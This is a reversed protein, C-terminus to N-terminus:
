SQAGSRLLLEEMEKLGQERAAQLATGGRLDVQDVDAGAAIMAEMLRNEGARAASTLREGLQSATFPLHAGVQVLLRIVEMHNALVACVLPPDGNRDKKHILAGQELLFHTMALNGESAAIHLPTRLDYDAASVDAGQELCYKLQAMDGKFVAACMLYPFLITKLDAVENRSSLKMNSVIAAIIDMNAGSAVSLKNTTPDVQQIKVSMEGRMNKVMLEKQQERSIPLSLVHALKALAAEPTIDLGPIAGANMLVKGTEYFAAVGGHSCQTVCLIIVGRATAEAIIDIVDQRNSPINGAGYCQLVVGEIPPGLFHKITSTTISPFIRLMAVNQCLNPHVKMKLLASPKLVTQHDVSIEIAVKALPSLNLSDFAHLDGASVKVTRNGRLLKHDFYVCVEPITYNGALILAGIINDLGDNRTEFCPIQSGTVIVTKGLNELMFSLASATYSLTDTGHLVVIGDYWSYASGIDTAIRSWDEMSMNSSDLLPEYEHITYAIRKEGPIDPLVLVKESKLTEKAYVADHLSPLRRLNQELANPATVLVGDQNRIMGITGGTYLVLVKSVGRVTVQNYPLGTNAEKSKETHEWCVESNNGVKLKNWASSKSM